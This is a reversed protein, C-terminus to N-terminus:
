PTIHDTSGAMIYVPYRIQSLDIRKGCARLEQKALKNDKSLDLMDCLVGSHLDRWDMPWFLLPHKLPDEGM